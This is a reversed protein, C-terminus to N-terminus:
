IHFSRTTNYASSTRTVVVTYYFDTCAGAGLSAFTVTSLGNLNIFPNSSDWVLSASVNTVAAGGTNCVRAGVEFTDPGSNVNNSDLGIVNWTTPQITLGAYASQVGWVGFFLLLMSTRIIFASPGGCFLKSNRLRM